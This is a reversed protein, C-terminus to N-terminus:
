ISGGICDESHTPYDLQQHYENCYYVAKCASCQYSAPQGCLACIPVITGSASVRYPKRYKYYKKRGGCGDVKKDKDEDQEKKKETEKAEEEPSLKTKKAPPPFLGSSEGTSSPEQEAPRKGLLGRKISKLKERVKDSKTNKIMEDVSSVTLKNRVAQSNDLLLFTVDEQRKKIPPTVEDAASAERLMDNNNVSFDVIERGAARNKAILRTIVEDSLDSEGKSLYQNVLELKFYPTAMLPLQMLEMSQSCFNEYGIRVYEQPVQQKGVLLSYLKWRWGYSSTARLLRDISLLFAGSLDKDDELIWKETRDYVVCAADAFLVVMKQFNDWTTKGDAMIRQDRVVLTDPLLPYWDIKPALNKEYLNSLLNGLYTPKVHELIVAFSHTDLKQMATVLLQQDNVDYAKVLTPLIFDETVPDLNEVVWRMLSFYEANAKEYQKPEDTETPLPPPRVVADLNHKGFQLHLAKVFWSSVSAIYAPFDTQNFLLNSRQLTSQSRDMRIRIIIRKVAVDRFLRWSQLSDVTDRSFLYGMQNVLSKADINPLQLLKDILFAFENAPYKQALRGRVGKLGSLLFDIGTTPNLLKLQREFLEVLREVSPYVPVTQIDIRPPPYIAGFVKQVFKIYDSAEDITTIMHDGVQPPPLRFLVEFNNMTLDCPYNSYGEIFPDFTRTRESLYVGQEFQLKDNSLAEFMYSGNLANREVDPDKFLERLARPSGNRLILEVYRRNYKEASRKPGVIFQKVPSEENVMNYKKVLEKEAPTLDEGRLYKEAAEKEGATEDPLIIRKQMMPCRNFVIDVVLKSIHGYNRLVQYVADERFNHLYVFLTSLSRGIQSIVHDIMTEDLSRHEKLSQKILRASFLSKSIKKSVADYIEADTRLYTAVRTMMYDLCIPGWSKLTATFKKKDEETQVKDAMERISDLKMTIEFDHRFLTLIRKKLIPFFTPDPPKMEAAVIAPRMIKELIETASRLRQEKLYVEDFKRRELDIQLDKLEKLRRAITRQGLGLRPSRLHRRARQRDTVHEAEMARFAQRADDVEKTLKAIETRAESEEATQSKLRSPQTIFVSMLPIDNSEIAMQLAYDAQDSYITPDIARKEDTLLRVLLKRAEILFAWKDPRAIMLSVVSSFIENVHMSWKLAPNDLLLNMLRLYDKEVDILPSLNLTTVILHPDVRGDRILLEIAEVNLPTTIIATGFAENYNERPDLVLLLGAFLRIYRQHTSTAALLYGNMMGLNELLNNRNLKIIDTKVSEQGTPKHDWYITIRLPDPPEKDTDTQTIVIKEDWRSGVRITQMEIRVFYWLDDILEEIFYNLVRSEAEKTLKEGGKGRVEIGVRLDATKQELEEM